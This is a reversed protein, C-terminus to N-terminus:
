HTETKNEDGLDLIRKIKIDANTIVRFSVRRSGEEDEVGDDLKLLRSSSLGVAAINRKIWAQTAEDTQQHYIYSLVTRTRGQSLEMNQFYAEEPTANRNWYTSTHGEIRVENISSEYQQLIRLYRPFFSDLLQQYAESLENRGPAFLLEPAHFSVTLTDREIVANWSALDKGFETVLANYIAIQIEQYSVAIERIKDREIFAERMLVVSVFLFIMMLSTMLDSVSVWHSEEGNNESLKHSTSRSPILNKM